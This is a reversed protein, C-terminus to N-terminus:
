LYINLTPSNRSFTKIFCLWRSIEIEDFISIHDQSFTSLFKSFCIWFKILKILNIKNLKCKVSEFTISILFSYNGFLQNSLKKIFFPGKWSYCPKHKWTYLCYNVVKIYGVTIKGKQLEVIGKKFIQHGKLEKM